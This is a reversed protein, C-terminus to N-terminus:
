LLSFIDRLHVCKDYEEYSAYLQICQELTDKLKLNKNEQILKKHKENSIDIKSIYEWAKNFALYKGAKKVENLNIDKNNGKLVKLINEVYIFHNGIIKIFMGIWYTPNETFDIFVEDESKIKKEFLGFIKETDIM